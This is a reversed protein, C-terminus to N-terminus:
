PGPVLTVSPASSAVQKSVILSQSVRNCAPSTSVSRNVFSRSSTSRITAWNPRCHRSFLIFFGAPCADRGAKRIWKCLNSRNNKENRRNKSFTFFNNVFAAQEAIIDGTGISYAGM